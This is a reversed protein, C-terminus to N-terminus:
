PALARARGDRGPKDRGDVGPWQMLSPSSAHLQASKRNWEQMQVAHIGPALGPMVHHYPRVRALLRAHRADGAGDHGPKDRGDVGPWQM